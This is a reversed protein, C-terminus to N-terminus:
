SLVDQLFHQMMNWSRQTSRESYIFGIDPRNASPMTYSHYTNSFVHVQWDEVEADVMEKEFDMVMQPPIMPDEHGHLVLIKADMRENPIGIAPKLAGHFSVVGKLPAGARALDLASLGGFCFGIAALSESAVMPLDRCTELAAFLRRRLLARDEVLSQMLKKRADMEAPRNGRGYVDWAFAVYGLKALERTREEVWEDLGSWAHGVLVAPRQESASGEYALYGDFHVGGEQYEIIETHM